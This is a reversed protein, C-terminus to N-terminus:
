RKTIDNIPEIESLKYEYVGLGQALVSPDSFQVSVWGEEKHFDDCVVGILGAELLIKRNPYEKETKTILTRVTTGLTIEM